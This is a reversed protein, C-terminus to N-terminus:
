KGDIELELNRMMTNVKSQGLELTRKQCLFPIDADVLHAQIRLVDDIGNSRQFIVPIDVMITNLM